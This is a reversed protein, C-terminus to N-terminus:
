CIPMTLVQPFAYSDYLCYSQYISSNQEKKRLIHYVFVFHLLLGHLFADQKIVGNSKQSNYFGQMRTADNVSVYFWVIEKHQIPLWILKTQKDTRSVWGFLEHICTDYFSFFGWLIEVCWRWKEGNKIKRLSSVNSQAHRFNISKPRLTSMVRKGAPVVKM